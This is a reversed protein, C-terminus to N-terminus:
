NKINPEEPNHPRTPNVPMNAIPVGTVEGEKTQSLYLKDKLWFKKLFDQPTVVLGDRMVQNYAWIYQKAVNYEKGLYANGMIAQWVKAGDAELEYEPNILKGLFNDPVFGALYHVLHPPYELEDIASTFGRLAKNFEGVILWDYTETQIFDLNPYKYHDVPYNIKAAIGSGEGLISPLFFLTSVQSEPYANKVATRIDLVSQGLEKQLFNLFSDYVEGSVNSMRNPIEPAFFGTETNFKVRTPYDYVCPKGNPNIWWWPEGVQMYPVHGADHLIKAFEVFVGQLWSMADANCPSLLYSPPEYGTYGYNDSWDRQTWTLEAAESYMEYSISFIAKLHNDYANNAFSKHWTTAERNLLNYTPADTAKTVVFRQQGADWKQDYYHSMGCYHNILGRYGLDYCNKIIRRPNVNYSDDYGTCMGLTHQPINMSRRNYTGNIGSTRLKSVKLKAHQPSALPDTSTAVFGKTLCGIFIRDIDNKPFPIDEMFGSMVTDWDITIDAHTATLTSPTALNALRLYYPTQGAASNDNVIVTMVLGLKEDLLSPADGEIDVTFSLTCNTFNKKTEYSLYPHMYKDESFFIAAAFDNKKRSTYHAEFGDDTDGVICFSMSRVGDITWCDASFRPVTTEIVEPHETLRDLLNALQSATATRNKENQSIAILEDGKLETAQPLLRFDDIGNYIINNIVSEYNKYLFSQEQIAYWLKDFDSNLTEPRLSNDYTKYNTSRELPTDRYIAIKATKFPAKFFVVSNTTPDYEYISSSILKEDVKISINDKGYVFFPLSFTKTFGNAEYEIFPATNAVTM